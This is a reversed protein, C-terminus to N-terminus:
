LLKITKLLPPCLSITRAESHPKAESCRVDRKSNLDRENKNIL